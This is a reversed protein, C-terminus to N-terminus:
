GDSEGPRVRLPVRLARPQPAPRPLGVTRDNRTTRRPPPRQRSRWRPTSRRTTTSTVGDPQPGAPGRGCGSPLKQFRALIASPIYPREQEIADLLGNRGGIDGGVFAEAMLMTLISTGEILANQDMSAKVDIERNKALENLQAKVGAIDARLAEIALLLAADAVPAPGAGTEPVPSRRARTKPAEAPPAAPPAAPAAALSAETVPARAPAAAPAPAGGHQADYAELASLVANIQQDPYTLSKFAAAQQDNDLLHLSKALTVLPFRGIALLGERTRPANDPTKASMPSSQTM